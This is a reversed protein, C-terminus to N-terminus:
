SSLYKRWLFNLIIIIEVPKQEGLSLQKINM